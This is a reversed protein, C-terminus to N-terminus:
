YKKTENLYVHGFTNNVEAKLSDNKLTNIISFAQNVYSLAKDKDPIALYVTSLNLIPQVQM